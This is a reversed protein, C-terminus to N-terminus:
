LLELVSEEGPGGISHDDDNLFEGKWLAGM